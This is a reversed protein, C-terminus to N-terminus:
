CISKPEVNIPIGTLSEAHDSMIKAVADKDGKKCLIGDHRQIAIIESQYVKAMVGQMLFSEMRTAVHSTVKYSGRKKIQSIWDAILPFDRQIVQYAPHKEANRAKDFLPRLVAQKAERYNLSDFNVSVNRKKEKEWEQFSQGAVQKILYTYLDSRFWPELGEPIRNVPSLTDFASNPNYDSIALFGILYPQFKPFDCEYLDSEGDLVLYKLAARDFQTLVSHRRHGTVDISYSHDGERIRRVKNEILPRNHESYDDPNFSSSVDLLGLCRKQEEDVWTMPVPDSPQKKQAKRRAKKAPPNTRVSSGKKDKVAPAEVPEVRKWGSRIKTWALSERRYRRLKRESIPKFDSHAEFEEFAVLWDCPKMVVGCEM